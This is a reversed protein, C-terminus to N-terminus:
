LYPTLDIGETSASMYSFDMVWVCVCHGPIFGAVRCGSHKYICYRPDHAAGRDAYGVTPYWCNCVCADGINGCPVPWNWCWNTIEAPCDPPNIPPDSPPADEGM